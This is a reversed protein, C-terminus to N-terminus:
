AHAKHLANWWLQYRKVVAGRNFFSRCEKWKDSDNQPTVSPLLLFFPFDRESDLARALRAFRARRARRASIDSLIVGSENKESVPANWASAVVTRVNIILPTPPPTQSAFRLLWWFSFVLLLLLQSANAFFSSTQTKKQAKKKAKKKRVFEERQKPNFVFVNTSKKFVFPLRRCRRRHVEKGRVGKRTRARETSFTDDRKTSERHSVDERERECCCCCCCCCFLLM